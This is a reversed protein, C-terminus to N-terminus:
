WEVLSVARGEQASLLASDVIQQRIRSTAVTLPGTLPEGTDLCHLLYEVPNRHPAVHLDNPLEYGEPSARTQM